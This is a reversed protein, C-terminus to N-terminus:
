WQLYGFSDICGALDERRKKGMRPIEIQLKQRRLENRESFAFVRQHRLKCSSNFRVNVLVSNRLAPIKEYQFLSVGHSEKKTPLLNLLLGFEAKYNTYCASLIYLVIARERNIKKQIM